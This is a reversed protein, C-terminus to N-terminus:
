MLDKWESLNYPTNQTTWIMDDMALSLFPDHNLFECLAEASALNNIEGALCPQEPQSALESVNSVMTMGTAGDMTREGQIRTVVRICEKLITMMRISLPSPRSTNTLFSLLENLTRMAESTERSGIPSVIVQLAQVEAANMWIGSVLCLMRVIHGSNEGENIKAAIRNSAAQAIERCYAWRHQALADSVSETGRQVLLPRCCVINIHNFLFNLFVCQNRLVNNVESVNEDTSSQLHKPLMLYFEQLSETISRITEWTDSKPDVNLYLRKMMQHMIQSLRYFALHFHM